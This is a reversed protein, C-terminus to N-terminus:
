VKRKTLNHCSICLTIANEMDWMFDYDQILDLLLYKDKKSM